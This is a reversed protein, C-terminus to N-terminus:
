LGQWRDTRNGRGRIAATDHPPDFTAPDGEKPRPGDYAHWHSTNCVRCRGNEADKALPALLRKTVWCPVCYAPGAPEDSRWYAHRALFVMAELQEIRGKDELQSRLEANESTLRCVRDQLDLAGNQAAIVADQLEIKLDTSDVKVLVNRLKSIADLMGTIVSIGGIVETVVM